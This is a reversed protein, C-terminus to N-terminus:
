DWSGRLDGEALVQFENEPHFGKIEDATRRAVVGLDMAVLAITLSGNMRTITFDLLENVMEKMRTTSRLYEDLRDQRSLMTTICAVWYRNPM